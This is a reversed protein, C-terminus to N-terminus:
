SQDSVEATIAAPSFGKAQIGAGQAHPLDDARRQAADQVVGNRMVRREIEVGYYDPQARRDHQQENLIGTSRHRNGRGSQRVLRWRLPGGGTASCDRASMSM